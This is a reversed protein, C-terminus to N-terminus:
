TLFQIRNPNPFNIRAYTGFLRLAAEDYAKAAEEEDDFYGLRTRVGSKCIQALWTEQRTDWSVGKYNSTSDRHSKGNAANETYNSVRLNTRRNDIGCGNCHDVVFKKPACM